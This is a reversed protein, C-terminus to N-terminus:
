WRRRVGTLLSLRRLHLLLVCMHAAACLSSEDCLGRHSSDRVMVIYLMKQGSQPSIAEFFERYGVICPHNMAHLFAVEKLAERRGKAGFQALDVEKM